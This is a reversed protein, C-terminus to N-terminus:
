KIRNNSFLREDSSEGEPWAGHDCDPEPDDRLVAAPEAGATGDDEGIRAFEAFATEGFDTKELLDVADDSVAQERGLHFAGDSM